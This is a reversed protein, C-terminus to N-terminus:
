FKYFKKFRVESIVKELEDVNKKGPSLPASRKKNKSDVNARLLNIPEEKKQRLSITPAAAVKAPKPQDQQKPSKNKIKPKKEEVEEPEAFYEYYNSDLKLPKLTEIVPIKSPVSSKRTVMGHVKKPDVDFKATAKKGGAVEWQSASTSNSSNTM